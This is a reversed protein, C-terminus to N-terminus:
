GSRSPPPDRHRGEADQVDLVIRGVPFQCPPVELAMGPVQLEGLHGRDPAGELVQGGLRDVQYQGVVPQRVPRPQLQEFGDLGSLDLHRDDQHRAGAVGVRRHAEELGAGGIVDDLPGAVEVRQGGHQLPRKAPELRRALEPPCGDPDEVRFVIGLVHLERPPREALVAAVQPQIDGRPSLIRELPQARHGVVEEQEVIAQWIQAPDLDEFRELGLPDPNGHDHHRSLPVLVRRDLRELQARGIVDDLAFPVQGLEGRRDLV